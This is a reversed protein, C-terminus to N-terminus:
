SKRQVGRMNEAIGVTHGQGAVVTLFFDDGWKGGTWDANSHAFNARVAATICVNTEVAGEVVRSRVM